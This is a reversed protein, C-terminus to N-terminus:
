PAMVFIRSTRMRLNSPMSRASLKKSAPLSPLNGASPNKRFFLDFVAKDRHKGSKWYGYAMTLQYLDTLMPGVFANTPRM